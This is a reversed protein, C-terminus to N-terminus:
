ANKVNKDNIRKSILILKLFSNTARVLLEFLNMEKLAYMRYKDLYTVRGMTLVIRTM